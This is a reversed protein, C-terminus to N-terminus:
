KGGRTKDNKQMSLKKRNPMPKEEKMTKDKPINDEEM